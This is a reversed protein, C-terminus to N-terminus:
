KLYIAKGSIDKDGTSYKILYVGSHIDESPEWIVSQTTKECSICDVLKGSIDYIEIEGFLDSCSLNIKVASNFPNPSVHIELNNPLDIESEEIGMLSNTFILIAYRDAVFIYDGDCYVDKARGATIYPDYEVLSDGGIIQYSLIGDKDAAVYLWDDNIAIGEADDSTEYEAAITPSSPDTIDFIIVGDDDASAYAYNGNIVLDTFDYGAAESLTAYLTMDLTEFVLFGEADDCVYLYELTAAIAAPDASVAEELVFATTPDTINVQAIGSSTMVYCLSFYREVRLANGGVDVETIPTPYETLGASQFISLGDGGAAAYIYQTYYLADNFRVGATYNFQHVPNFLDPANFGDIGSLGASTLIKPGEAWVQDIDTHRDERSIFSINDPDSLVDVIQLGSPTCLYVLGEDTADIEEISTTSTPHHDILTPSSPTSVDMSLIGYNGAGVYITDGIMDLSTFSRGSPATYTGVATPSYPDSVNLIVLGAIEAALYLYQDKKYISRIFTSSSYTGRTGPSAPDSVDVIVIGAMGRSVYAYDGDVFVYYTGGPIYLSSIVSPSSLSSVDIMFLGNMPTTVYAYDGQVAVSNAEDSFSLQGVISLSTPSSKDIIVLGSDTAATFIYDGNILLQSVECGIYLWEVLEPHYEDTVDFVGIGYPFSVYLYNGDARAQLLDSWLESSVFELPSVALVCSVLVLLALLYLKM